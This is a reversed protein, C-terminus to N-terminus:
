FAQFAEMVRACPESLVGLMNNCVSYPGADYGLQYRIRTCYIVKITCAKDAPQTFQQAM